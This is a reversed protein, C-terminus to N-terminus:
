PLGGKTEKVFDSTKFGAGPRIEQFVTGGAVRVDDNSLENAFLFIYSSELNGKLFHTPSHRLSVNNDSGSHSSGENTQVYLFSARFFYRNRMQGCYKKPTSLLLVKEAKKPYEISTGM